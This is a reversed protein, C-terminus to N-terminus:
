SNLHNEAEMQRENLNSVWPFINQVVKIVRTAIKSQSQGQTNQVPNMKLTPSTKKKKLTQLGEKKERESEHM